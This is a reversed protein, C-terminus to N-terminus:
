QDIKMNKMSPTKSTCGSVLSVLLLTTLMAASRISLM